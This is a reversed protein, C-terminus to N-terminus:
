NLPLSSKRLMEIVRPVQFQTFNNSFDTDIVAVMCSDVQKSM